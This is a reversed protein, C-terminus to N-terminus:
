LPGYLQFTMQHLVSSLLLSKLAFHVKRLAEAIIGKFISLEKSALIIGLFSVSFPFSVMRKLCSLEIDFIVTQGLHGPFISAQICITVYNPCKYKEEKYLIQYNNNDHDIMFLCSQEITM